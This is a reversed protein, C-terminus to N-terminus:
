SSPPLPKALKLLTRRGADFIFAASGAIYVAYNQYPTGQFAAMAFITFGKLYGEFRLYTAVVQNAEYQVSDRMASPTQYKNEFYGFVNTLFAFLPTAASTTFVYVIATWYPQIEPPLTTIDVVQIAGAIATLVAAVVILIVTVTYPNIKAM